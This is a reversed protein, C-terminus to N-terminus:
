SAASKDHNLSNQLKSRQENEPKRPSSYDPFQERELPALTEACTLLTLTSSVLATNDTYGQRTSGLTFFVHSCAGGEGGGGGTM